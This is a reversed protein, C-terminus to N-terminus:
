NSSARTVGGGGTARGGLHCAVHVSSTPPHYKRMPLWFLSQCFNTKRWKVYNCTQVFRLTNWGRRRKWATPHPSIPNLLKAEVDRQSYTLKARVPNTQLREGEPKRCKTTRWHVLPYRPPLPPSQQRWHMSISAIARSMLLAFGCM